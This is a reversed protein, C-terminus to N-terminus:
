TGFRAPNKRPLLKGFLYKKACITKMPITTSSPTTEGSRVVPKGNLSRLILVHEDSPGSPAQQGQEYAPIGLPSLLQAALSDSDQGDSPRRTGYVFTVGAVVGLNVMFGDQPHRHLIYDVIHGESSGRHLKNTRSKETETEHKLKVLRVTRDMWSQNTDGSRSISQYLKYDRAKFENVWIVHNADLRMNRTFNYVSRSVPSASGMESVRELAYELICQMMEDPIGALSKHDQM